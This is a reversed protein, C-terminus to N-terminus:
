VREHLRLAVRSVELAYELFEIVFEVQQIDLLLLLIGLWLRSRAENFELKFLILEIHAIVGHLFGLIILLVLLGLFHNPGGLHELLYISILDLQINLPEKLIQDDHFRPWREPHNLFRGFIKDMLPVIAILVIVIAILIAIFHIPSETSFRVSFLWRYLVSFFLYELDEFSFSALLYLVLINRILDFLKVLLNKFVLSRAGLERIDDLQLIIDVL